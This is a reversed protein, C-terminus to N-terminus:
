GVHYVSYLGGRGRRGASQRRARGSFERRRDGVFARQKRTANLRESQQNPIRNRAPSRLRNERTIIRTRDIAVRPPYRWDTGDLPPGGVAMGLVANVRVAYSLRPIALGVSTAALVRALLQCVLRADEISDSAAISDM